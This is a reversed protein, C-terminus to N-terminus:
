IDTHKAHGTGVGGMGREVLGLCEDCVGHVVTALQTSERRDRDRDAGMDAGVRQGTAWAVGGRDGGACLAPTPAGRKAVDLDDEWMGQLAMAAGHDDCGTGCVGGASRLEWAWQDRDGQV